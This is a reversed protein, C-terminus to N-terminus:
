DDKREELVVNGRKQGRKRPLTWGAADPTYIYGFPTEEKRGM